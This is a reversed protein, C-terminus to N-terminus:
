KLAEIICSYGLYEAQRMDISVSRTVIFLALPIFVVPRANSCVASSVM